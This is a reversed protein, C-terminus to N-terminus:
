APFIGAGCDTIEDERRDTRGQPGCIAMLIRRIGTQAAGFLFGKQNKIKM